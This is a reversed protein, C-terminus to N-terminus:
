GLKFGALFGAIFSAAFPLLIITHILWSFAGSVKGLLDSLLRFLADYNVSLVGRLGLYVLVTVFLGALVLILKGLKKVSFGVIFGLFGGLGLEYVIPPLIDGMRKELFMM